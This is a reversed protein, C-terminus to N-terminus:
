VILVYRTNYGRARLWEFAVRLAVRTALTIAWQAPFLLILFLRSVDPLKFAFLVTGVVLGFIVIARAIALAESRISWRARPRYLGQLWLVGVWVVAYGIAVVAPQALLPRWVAFWSPGFRIISLAVLVAIALVGDAVMLLARFGSAHRRLM